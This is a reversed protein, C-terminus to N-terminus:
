HGDYKVASAVSDGLARSNLPLQKCAVTVLLTLFTEDANPTILGHGTVTIDDSVGLGIQACAADVTHEYLPGTAQSFPCM